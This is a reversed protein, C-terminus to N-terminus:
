AAAPAMEAGLEAHLRFRGGNMRVAGFIPRPFHTSRSLLVAQQARGTLNGLEANEVAALETAAAALVAKTLDPDDLDHLARGARHTSEIM